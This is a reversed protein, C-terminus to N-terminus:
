QGSPPFLTHSIFPTVYLSTHFTLIKALWPNSVSLMLPVSMPSADTCQPSRYSVFQLSDLGAGLRKSVLLVRKVHSAQELGGVGLEAVGLGVVDLEVVGVGVIGEVGVGVIGEVGIGVVGVAGDWSGSAGGDAFGDAEGLVNGVDDGVEGGLRNGVDVLGM